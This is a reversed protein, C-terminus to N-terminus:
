FADGRWSLRDSPWCRKAISGVSESSGPFLFSQLPGPLLGIATVPVAFLIRFRLMIMGSSDNMTDHNIPRYRAESLMNVSSLDEPILLIEASEDPKRDSGKCRYPLEDLSSPIIM